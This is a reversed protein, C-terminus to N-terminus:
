SVFMSTVREYLIEKEGYLREAIIGKDNCAKLLNNSQVIPNSEDTYKISSIFELWPEQGMAYVYIEKPEFIEVISMGKSCDSGSLRRSGDKDRSLKRTFLPGYLWSLPAGDCEMGIFIVDIKGVQRQIHRYLAPELVRSDALLMLKFEGIQVLYCSKTLINLDCHEGTFPIGMITTEGFQIIEMEGVSIVNNFGINNFMLKLDPDELKGGCTKPLIINKIRHRLPLLTELLIHDQHNHTILVYDISDPLDIDSFHDISSDYGYYSLLPDVLISIDKTELLICAHGFYRMRIKDGIYKNYVPPPTETFFTEFLCEQPKSISLLSKIHDLTQPIRKMKALEDIAQHDFSIEMHLVEPDDLRPTSLSFPRQDNNTIWFAMSQSSKIYYESSYLLSEFFRFSPNNNRDYYLEVYGKLIDPVKAYIDELGFGKAESLLLDDLEKVARAFQISKSREDITKRQLEKVEELRGGGLDMFPGGRMKPNKVAGAHLEPGLLYSEMIRLHRWLINMAATAPSIIHSWAYWRDVLPEFVV